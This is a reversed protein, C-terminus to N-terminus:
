HTNERGKDFFKQYSIKVPIFTMRVIKWEEM